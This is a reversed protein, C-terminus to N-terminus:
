YIDFSPQPPTVDGDFAEKVVEVQPPLQQQARMMDGATQM